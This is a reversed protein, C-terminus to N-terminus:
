KEIFKVVEILILDLSEGLHIKLIGKICNKEIARRKSNKPNEALVSGADEKKESLSSLSHEGM